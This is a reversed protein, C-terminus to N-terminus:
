AGAPRLETRVDVREFGHEVLTSRIQDRIADLAPCGSYTPTITVVVTGDPDTEVARLIGLDDISVVPLEPDPIAAVLAHPSVLDSGPVLPPRVPARRAPLGNGRYAARRSRREAGLRGGAAR